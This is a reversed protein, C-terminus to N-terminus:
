FNGGPATSIKPSNPLLCLIPLGYTHNECVTQERFEASSACALVKAKGREELYGDALAASVGLTIHTMCFLRCCM